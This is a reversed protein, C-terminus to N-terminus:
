DWSKDEQTISPSPGIEMEDEPELTSRKTPIYSMEEAAARQRSVILLENTTTTLPKETHEEIEGDSSM